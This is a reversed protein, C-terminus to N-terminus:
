KEVDEFVGEGDFILKNLLKIKSGNTRFSSLIKRAVIVLQIHDHLVADLDETKQKLLDSIYELDKSRSFNSLLDRYPCDKICHERDMGFGAKLEDALKELSFPTNETM